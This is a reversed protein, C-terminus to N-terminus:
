RGHGVGTHCHLCDPWAEGTTQRLGAVMSEHCALCAQRTVRRNSERIRIPEPFGGLTFAVSHNWGNIAKVIWEDPFRHPTHCDNCTAGTTHSGHIWGDYVPQMVHCQICAEPDDSLYAAGQAYVFTFGGLGLTAGAFGALLLWLAFPGRSLV